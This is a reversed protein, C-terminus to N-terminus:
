GYARAARITRGEAPRAEIADLSMQPRAHKLVRRSPTASSKGFDWISGIDPYRILIKEVTFANLRSSSRMQEEAALERVGEGKGRLQDLSTQLAKRDVGPLRLQSAKGGDLLVVNKKLQADVACTSPM